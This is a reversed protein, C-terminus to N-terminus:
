VMIRELFENFQEETNNGFGYMRHFASHIDHRLCVGLPYKSQETKVADIFNRKEETSATNPDFGCSGCGLLNIANEVITNLSVLHHIEDFRDGSVVCKYASARMSDEKWDINYKRFFACATEYNTTVKRHLGLRNRRNKISSGPHGLIAGIDEDSMNLYNDAIFKEEETTYTHYPRYGVLGLKMAHAVVANRSRGPLLDSVSTAPILGYLETLISEEDASWAGPRHTMNLRQRRTEIGAGTRGLVEAIEADSRGNM